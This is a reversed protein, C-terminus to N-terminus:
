KPSRRALAVQLLFEAAELHRNAAAADAGWATVGHARILIGPALAAGDPGKPAAFWRELSAAIRGVDAHNEFVPLAVRAGAEWFGWAKIMELDEFVLHGLAESGQAAAHTPTALAAAPTHVHVAVRAEPHAAYLARHIVAEASPRAGASAALTTGAAVDCLVFDEVGLMGKHCGSATVVFADVGDVSVRASLNGSTALVWGLRDYRAGLAILQARAARTTEPLPRM